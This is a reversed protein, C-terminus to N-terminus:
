EYTLDPTLLEIECSEQPPEITFFLLRKPDCGQDYMQKIFERRRLGIGQRIGDQYAAWQGPHSRLLDPLERLFTEYSASAHEPVEVFSSIATADASVPSLPIPQPVAIPHVPGANHALDSNNM